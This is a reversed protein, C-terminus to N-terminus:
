HQTSSLTQGDAKAIQELFARNTPLSAAYAALFAPKLAPADSFIYDADMRVFDQVSADALARSRAAILLRAPILSPSQPATLYAMELAAAGSSAEGLSSNSAALLLWMQAQLPATSLAREAATRAALIESAPAESPLNGSSIDFGSQISADEAWLDARILGIAAAIKARAKAAESYPANGASRLRPREIEASFIWIGQILAVVSVVALILRFKM